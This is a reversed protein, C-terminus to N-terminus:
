RPGIACVGATISRMPSRWAALATALEVMAGARRVNARHIVANITLPMGSATVWRAVERKKAFAGEYGAIRDASVPEADQISLQV